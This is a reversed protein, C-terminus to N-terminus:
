VLISIGDHLGVKMDEDLGLKKGFDGGGFVMVSLSLGEVFIGDMVLVRINTASLCGEVKVHM